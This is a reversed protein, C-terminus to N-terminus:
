SELVRRAEVLEWYQDTALPLLTYWIRAIVTAAAVLGNGKAFLYIPVPPVIIGGAPMSSFDVTLPLHIIKGSAAAGFDSRQYLEMDLISGENFNAVTLANNVCLGFKLSDGDGNFQAAQLSDVLYDVRNIVWAVKENLSIGTELKKFTLTNAASETVTIVALNAFQDKKEAM